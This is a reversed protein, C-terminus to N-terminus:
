TSTWASAYGNGQNTCTSCSPATAAINFRNNNQIKSPLFPNTAVNPYHFAANFAVYRPTTDWFINNSMTGLDVGATTELEYMIAGVGNPILTNHQIDHKASNQARIDEIASSGIGDAGPLVINYKITIQTQGDSPDGVIGDHINFNDFVPFSS